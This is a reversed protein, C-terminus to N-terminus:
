CKEKLLLNFSISLREQTTNHQTVHHIYHSPFLIIENEKIEPDVTDTSQVRLVSDIGSLKYPLNTEDYFLFKGSDEPLSFFYVGVLNYHRSPHTHAEQSMGKRYKNAWVNVFEITYDHCNTGIEEILKEIHPTIEAIFIDWPVEQEVSLETTLVNCDWGPHAFNSDDKLYKEILETEITKRAPPGIDAQCYWRPNFLKLM